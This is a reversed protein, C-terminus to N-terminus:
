RHLFFNTLANPMLFCAKQLFKQRNSLNATVQNPLHETLSAAIRYPVSCIYPLFYVM